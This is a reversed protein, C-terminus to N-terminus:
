GALILSETWRRLYATVEAAGGTVPAVYGDPRVVVYGSRPYGNGEVDIAIAGHVAPVGIALVTFRRERFLEFLRM